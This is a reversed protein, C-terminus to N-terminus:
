SSGDRAGRDLALQGIAKGQALGADGDFRYHIGGYLRSLAAEAASARLTAAERPFLGALVTSGAGSFAAHASTYSPHNPKGVPTSIAPDAQFPRIEWYHYKTEFCAIGADMVAMSLLALVRAARLEGLRHM